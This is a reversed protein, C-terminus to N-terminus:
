VPPAPADEEPVPEAALEADPTTAASTAATSRLFAAMEPPICLYKLLTKTQEKKKKNVTRGVVDAFTQDCGPCSRLRVSVSSETAAPAPQARLADVESVRDERLAAMLPEAASLPMRLLYPGEPCWSTCDECYPEAARSHAMAAAAIAVFLAELAWLFWLFGGTVKSSKIYVGQENRLLMSGALGKHGTHESLVVDVVAQPDKELRALLEAKPAAGLAQEANIQERMGAAVNHAIWL